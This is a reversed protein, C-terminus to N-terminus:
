NFTGCASEVIGRGSSALRTWEALVLIRDSWQRTHRTRFVGERLPHMRSGQFIANTLNEPVYAPFALTPMIIYKGKKRQLQIDVLINNEVCVIDRIVHPCPAKNRTRCQNRDALSRVFGISAKDTSRLSPFAHSWLYWHNDVSGRHLFRHSGSPDTSLRHDIDVLHFRNCKRTDRINHPYTLLWRSVRYCRKERL